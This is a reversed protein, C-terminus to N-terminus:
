AQMFQNQMLMETARSEISKERDSLLTFIAERKSLLTKEWPDTEESFGDDELIELFTEDEQSLILRAAEECCLGLGVEERDSFEHYFRPHERCIHCLSEEGLTLIMRCLGNEQLFPCREEEGILRFHATEGDNEINKSLFEGIEGDISKYYDLSDEDIDIEWGICCSHQCRDAICSFSKYYNPAIKKM